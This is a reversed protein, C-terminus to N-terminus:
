DKLKPDFTDRLGDGVFNFSLVTVLILLGPFIAKWPANIMTNIDQAAMLMNGWSATPPQVGLGFFSLSSESLIAGAIGMTASVIIPGIANPLIHRSIIRAHSVGSCEAALVYEREKISLFEARVYRSTGTWSTLGLIIMVTVATGGWTSMIAILLIFTPIARIADVFRMLLDDLLGGFYGALSGVITGIVVAIGASILGISLSIRGAHLCRSFVDRGLEDRGFLNPPYTREVGDMGAQRTSHLSPAQDVFLIDNADGAPDYPSLVPALIATASLFLLTCLGAVALKNKRFKKWFAKFRKHTTDSHDFSEAVSASSSRPDPQLAM